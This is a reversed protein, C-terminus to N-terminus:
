IQAISRLSQDLTIDYIASLIEDNQMKTKKHENKLKTNLEMIKTDLPKIYKEYLEKKQDNIVSIEDRIINSSDEIKLTQRMKMVIKQLYDNIEDEDDTDYKYTERNKLQELTDNVETPLGGLKVIQEKIQEKDM